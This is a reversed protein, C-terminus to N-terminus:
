SIDLTLNKTHNLIDLKCNITVNVSDERQEAPDHEDYSEHSYVCRLLKGDHSPQYRFYSTINQICIALYVFIISTELLYDYPSIVKPIYYLVDIVNYSNQEDDFCEENTNDMCEQDM